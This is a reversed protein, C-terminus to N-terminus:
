RVSLPNVRATVRINSPAGKSEQDACQNLSSNTIKRLGEACELIFDEIIGRFRKKKM